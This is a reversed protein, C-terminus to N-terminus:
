SSVLPFDQQLNDGAVEIEIGSRYKEPIINISEANAGSYEQIMRGTLQVASITVCVPGMPVADAQYKGDVIQATMPLAQQSGRGVFSIQGNPIPEGDLTISGALKAVPYDPGSTGCGPAGVVMLWAALWGWRAVGPPKWWGAPFTERGKPREPTPRAM